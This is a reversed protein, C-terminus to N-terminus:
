IQYAYLLTLVRYTVAISTRVNLLYNMGSDSRLLLM